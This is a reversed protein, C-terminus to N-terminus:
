TVSWSSAYYWRIQKIFQFICWASHKTFHVVYMVIQTAIVKWSFYYTIWVIEMVLLVDPRISISSKSLERWQFTVHQTWNSFIAQDWCNTKWLKSAIGSAQVQCRSTNCIRTASGHETIDYLISTRLFGLTFARGKNLTVVSSPSCTRSDM